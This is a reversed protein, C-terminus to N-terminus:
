EYDALEKILRKFVLETLDVDRDCRMLMEESYVSWDEHAVKELGLKEGFAELSHGPQRDANLFQSLQLTDLFRVPKGNFSCGKTDWKYEIGWVFRLAELDFTVNHGIVLDPKLKDLYNCLDERSRFSCKDGTELVKTCVVWVNKLLPVLNDTECDIVLSTM